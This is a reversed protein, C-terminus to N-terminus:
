FIDAAFALSALETMDYQLGECAQHVDQPVFALFGPRLTVHISVEHHKVM